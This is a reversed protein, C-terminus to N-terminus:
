KAPKLTSPSLSAAAKKGGIPKEMMEGKGPYNDGRAAPPPAPRSAPKSRPLLSTTLSNWCLLTEDPTLQQLRFDRASVQV